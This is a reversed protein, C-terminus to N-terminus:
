GTSAVGEARKRLIRDHLKTVCAMAVSFARAEAVISSNCTM